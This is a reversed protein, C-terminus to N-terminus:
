KEPSSGSRSRGRPRTAAARNRLAEIQRQLRTSGYVRQQQWHLRIDELEEPPSRDAVLTDSQRTVSDVSAGAIHAFGLSAPGGDAAAAGLLQRRPSSEDAAHRLKTQGFM